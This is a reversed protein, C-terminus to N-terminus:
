SGVCSCILLVKALEDGTCSVLPVCYESAEVDDPIFSLKGTALVKEVQVEPPSQKVLKLSVTYLGPRESGCCDTWQM